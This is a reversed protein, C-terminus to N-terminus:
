FLSTGAREATLTPLEREARAEIHLGLRGVANELRRTTM